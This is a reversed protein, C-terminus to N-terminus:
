EDYSEDDDYSSEDYSSSETSFSEGRRAAMMREYEEAQAKRAKEARKAQDKRAKEAVDKNYAQLAEKADALERKKRELEQKAATIGESVDSYFVVFYAAGVMAVFVVGIAVKGAPSLNELGSRGSKLKLGAM